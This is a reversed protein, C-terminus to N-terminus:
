KRGRVCYNLTGQGFTNLIAKNVKKYSECEMMYVEGYYLGEEINNVFYETEKEILFKLDNLTM